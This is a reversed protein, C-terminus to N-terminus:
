THMCANQTLSDPHREKKLTSSKLKSCIQSYKSKNTKPALQTYVHVSIFFCVKNREVCRCYIQAGNAQQEEDRAATHRAPKQQAGGVEEVQGGARPGQRLGRAESCCIPTGLAIRTLQQQTHYM